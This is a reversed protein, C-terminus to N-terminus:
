EKYKYQLAKVASFLQRTETGDDIARNWIERLEERDRRSLFGLESMLWQEARQRNSLHSPDCWITDGQHRYCALEVFAQLKVVNKTM